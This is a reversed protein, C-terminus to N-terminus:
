IYTAMPKGYVTPLIAYDVSLKHFATYYLWVGFELLEEQFMLTQQLTLLDDSRAEVGV